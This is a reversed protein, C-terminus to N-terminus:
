KNKEEIWRSMYKTSKLTHHQLLTGLFNNLRHQKLNACLFDIKTRFEAEFLDKSYRQNIIEIGNKQAKDWIKQDQYLLVAADVFDAVDDNVFGSWPLDGHMSESGISTTSSPTGCQMAELLKGKIGAGFRLPALVVRAKKVEEQADVARGLILFGDKKNHLQMVKQSPYAGYVNLFAEPIQKKILPWMTEKLYQVANWNPEHLFNGVFVFDKRVEFSPLEQLIADNIPELLFPLYYLLANDIKFTSELLQMEFESILLSLDCRLISAVERKAVEEVFLDTTKFLRNEKFAKQRALRLCHLDETDLLRLADPCNEAVRWGFQEEIMFRDFLVVTPNLDKIFVDFSSNNLEISKREVGYEYLDVIFDSNQASSAFTISFGDAKFLSILQMMRGGAASSNPEPWVFGIILLKQVQNM